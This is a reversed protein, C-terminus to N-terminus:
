RKSRLERATERATDPLRLESIYMSEPADAVTLLVVRERARTFAVYFLRREAELEEETGARRHPWVGHVADLVIVTNFEKGKARTATMLHLPRDDGAPERADAGGGGDDEFAEYDRLREKAVELRTILDDASMRESGAMEALQQLPPNTYWVDDEAKDQDFALGDFGSAMAALAASVSDAGAFAGATSHLQEHSKGRLKAGRYAAIAAVAESCTRPATRTLYSQLRERDQKNLPFRKIRDCVTIADDVAQRIRRREGRRNWIELLEILQDFARSSFVDLDAATKIPAGDSAYYVEYPILQSRTRGIVAVRGPYATDRAIETVLQLRDGIRGTTIVQIDAESAGAAAQVNKAVRRQNRQILHQSHAVINRPSRYNVSLIHDAFDRGFYAGPNLIFQPTAGRWEFIAQDDDGAITITARHRDAIARILALDLPNIDQFEDILIHNFRAAGYIPARENQGASRGCLDLYYWYKQDEFTFTSQEHLWQTADRWFRFFRDYFQRRSASPAERSGRGPRELVGLRTLEDFQSDVQQGLGLKQLDDFREQFRQYNTDATHDCGLAKLNDMVALLRRPPAGRKAAVEAVAAYRDHSWVPRLQNQMAFHRETNNALLKPHRVQERMRRFGYANLTSVVVHERLPAFQPDAALRAKLEHTAARTFTVILFRESRQARGILELCRHLLVSTKGCGAPALLRIYRAESECFERQSSDLEM